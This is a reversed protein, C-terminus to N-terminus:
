SSRECYILLRQTGVTYPHCTLLTLMDRGNQILIADIDDPQIVAMEMVTYTMTGWFNTLYVLDGRELDDLNRFYPIGRYGRHGAIVCNTSEGGVPLSTQGLVVAGKAMNEKTAGLYVPLELGIAPISLSGIPSGNELGYDALNLAPQEYAEPSTLHVQKEEVLQENYRIMAKALEEYILNEGSADLSLEEEVQSIQENMTELVKEAQYEYVATNIQPYFILWLGVLFGILILLWLWNPNQRRM